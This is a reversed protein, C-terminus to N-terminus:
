DADVNALFDEMGNAESSVALNSKSTLDLSQREDLGEFPLRRADNAHHWFRVDL